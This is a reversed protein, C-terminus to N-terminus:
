AFTNTFLTEIFKHTDKMWKDTTSTSANLKNADGSADINSRSKEQQSEYLVDNEDDSDDDDEEDIASGAAEAATSAFIDIDNSNSSSSPNKLMLMDFFTDFVVNSPPILHSKENFFENM